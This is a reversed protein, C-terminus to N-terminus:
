WKQHSTNWPDHLTCINDWTMRLILPQLVMAQLWMQASSIKYIFNQQFVTVEKNETYNPAAKINCCTSYNLYIMTHGVLGLINIIRGRVPFTQTCFRGKFSNDTNENKSHCCLSGCPEYNPLNERAERTAWHYLVRKGTCSVFFTHILDRPPSPGRSSLTAEWLTRAQLVGPVSSSLGHPRLSDSVVSCRLATCM